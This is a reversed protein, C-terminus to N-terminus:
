QLIIRQAVGAEAVDGPIKAKAAWLLLLATTKMREQLIILIGACQQIFEHASRAFRANGASDTSRLTLGLVIYIYVRLM